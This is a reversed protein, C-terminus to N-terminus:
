KMASTAPPRAVVELDHVPDAALALEVLAVSSWRARSRPRRLRHPDAVAGVVLLLVVDPARHEVRDVQVGLRAVVQGLADPRDEHALDLARDVVPALGVAADPLHAALGLM